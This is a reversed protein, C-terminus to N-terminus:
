KKIGTVESRSLLKEGMYLEMKIITTEPSYWFIMKTKGMQQKVKEMIKKSEEDMEPMDVEAEVISSIRYCDFTGAPTTINEKAEVKREKIHSTIKRSKGATTM